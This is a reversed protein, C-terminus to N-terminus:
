PLLIRSRELARSLVGERITALVVKATEMDIVPTAETFLPRGQPSLQGHDRVFEMLFFQRGHKMDNPTSGYKPFYTEIKIGEDLKQKLVDMKNFVLTMNAGALSPNGCVERWLYTSQQIWNWPDGEELAGDSALPALFVIAQVDDLYPAWQRV